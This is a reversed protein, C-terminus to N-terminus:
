YSQQFISEILVQRESKKDSLSQIEEKSLNQSKSELSYIMIM